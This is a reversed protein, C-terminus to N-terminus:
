VADVLVVPRHQLHIETASFYNREERLEGRVSIAM